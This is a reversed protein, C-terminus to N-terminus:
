EIELLQMLSGLFLYFRLAISDVCICVYMYVIYMCIRM